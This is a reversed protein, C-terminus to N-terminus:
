CFLDDGQHYLEDRSGPVINVRRIGEAVSARWAATVMSKYVTLNGSTLNM